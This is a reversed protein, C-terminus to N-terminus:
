GDWVSEKARKEEEGRRVDEERAKRLKVRAAEDYARQEETRRPARQGLAGAILRSATSATKEPRQGPTSIRSNPPPAIGSLPEGNPGLFAPIEKNSTLPRRPTTPPPAIGSLPEGNQGRFPIAEKHRPPFTTNANPNSTQALHASPSEPMTSSAPSDTESASDDEWSDAISERSAKTKSAAINDRIPPSSVGPSTEKVEPTAPKEAM